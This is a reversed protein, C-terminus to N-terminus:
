RLFQFPGIWSCLLPIGILLYGWVLAVSTIRRLDLEFSLHCKIRCCWSMNSANGAPELPCFLPLLAITGVIDNWNYETCSEAPFFCNKRCDKGVMLLWAMGMMIILVGIAYGIGAFAWHMGNDPRDASSAFALGQM